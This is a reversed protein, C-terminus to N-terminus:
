CQAIPTKPTICSASLAPPMNVEQQGQPARQGEAFTFSTATAEYENFMNYYGCTNCQLEAKLNNGFWQSPINSVSRFPLDKYLPNDRGSCVLLKM